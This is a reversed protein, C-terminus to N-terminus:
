QQILMKAHWSNKLAIEWEKDFAAKSSVLNNFVITDETVEGSAVKQEFARISCIKIEEQVKYAVLLRNMLNISLTQEIGQIFRVSKDIGCGSADAQTEDVFLVLFLNYYIKLESKLLKGHATWDAIFAGAAENISSQEQATLIRDSQYIWVKSNPSFENM